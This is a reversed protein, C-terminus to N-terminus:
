LGGWYKKYMMHKKIGPILVLPFLIFLGLIGLPLLATYVPAGRMGQSIFIDLYQTFPFFQGLAALGKPMGMFPFTLGSFTFACVAYLSSSSLAMRLNSTFGTILIGIGQYALVYFVNSIILVLRSGRLPVDVVRFLLTSMFLTMIIYLISYPLMKGTIASIPDYGSVKLWERATGEKMEINICYVSLTIIFMQLMVPLLAALLYYAYNGFPNFLLKKELVIPNALELAKSQDEGKKLRSQMDIGVGMTLLSTRIDRDLLGGKVINAISVYLPVTTQQGRYVDKEFGRPIVVLADIKGAYILDKGEEESAVRYAVAASQTADVMRIAKRSMTSGDADYVAIPIEHPVGTSFMETFLWFSLLPFVLLLSVYIPNVTMRKIERLAVALIGKRMSHRIKKRLRQRM